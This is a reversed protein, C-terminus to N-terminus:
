RTAAPAFRPRALAGYGAMLALRSVLRRDLGTQCLGKVDGDKPVPEALLAFDM